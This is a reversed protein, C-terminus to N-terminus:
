RDERPANRGLIEDLQAQSAYAVYTSLKVSISLETTTVGGEGSFSIREVILFQESAQLAALMKRIQAYQGLVSFQIGFSTLNLDDDADASYTYRGPLLGADRTAAGVARLIGTLRQDLSGFVEEYLRELDEEVTEVQGVEAMAAGRVEELRVLSTELEDVENDLTAKRGLSDSSLWVYGTVCALCLVAMPLWVPLLAQWAKVQASM